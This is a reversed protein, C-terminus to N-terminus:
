DRAPPEALADHVAAAIQARLAERLAGLAVDLREDVAAHLRAVLAETAEATLGQNVGAAYAPPGPTGPHPAPVEPATAPPQADDPQESYAPQAAHWVPATPAERDAQPFYAGPHPAPPLPAGEPSAIAAGETLPDLSALLDQADALALSAASPPEPEPEHAAEQTPAAEIIRGAPRAGAVILDTLVPLDLDEPLV